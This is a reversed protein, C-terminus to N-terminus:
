EKDTKLSVKEDIIEELAITLPTKYLFDVQPPNYAPIDGNNVRNINDVIQMARKSAVVSLKYKSPVKELLESYDPKVLM